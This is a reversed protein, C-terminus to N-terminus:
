LARRLYLATLPQQFGGDAATTREVIARLIHRRRRHRGKGFLTDGDGPRTGCSTTSRRRSASWTAVPCTSRTSLPIIVLNNSWRPTCTGSHRASRCGQSADVLLLVGECSALARSVEYSFDVHGPTDILNLEYEEGRDDVYPLDVTQSKSPSAGNEREIDM